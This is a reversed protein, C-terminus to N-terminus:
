GAIVTVRETALAIQLPHLVPNMESSVIEDFVKRKEDGKMMLVHSQAAMIVLPSVSIRDHVDFEDTTTHIALVEKFSDESVPPFLSAIHGDSGLGLTIIDPAQESFLRILVESYAIVCDEAELSTDPFFLNDEPIEAYLLLTDRILNQNSSEDEPSVFREDALFVFVNNWDIEEKGLEEYVTRPTKGGSLGIICKGHDSIAANIKESLLKVSQATFDDDSETEILNFNM